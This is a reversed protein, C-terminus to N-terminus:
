GPRRTARPDNDRPLAAGPEVPAAGEREVLVAPEEFSLSRIVIRRGSLVAAIELQGGLAEVLERLTSIRHDDRQEFRSVEGQSMEALRALEAQTLGLEERLAKFTAVEAAVAANVEAIRAKSVKGGRSRVDRWRHTM